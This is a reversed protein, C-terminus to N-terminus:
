MLPDLLWPRNRTPLKADPQLRLSTNFCASTGGVQKALAKLRWQVKRARAHVLGKSCSFLLAGRRWTMAIHMEIKPNVILLSRSGPHRWQEAVM